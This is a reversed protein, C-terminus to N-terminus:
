TTEVKLTVAFLAGSPTDALVLDGGHARALDRAITLGIGTGSVGEVLSDNARFFPEFIHERIHTPIGPGHDEVRVRAMGSDLSTEIRVWKGTAAYKEVNSLLNGVIQELADRDFICSRPADPAFEVEFGRAALAASFSELVSSVVADITGPTPHLRATKRQQRGFTLVNSILRSLRQSEDVIVSLAHRTREGPDPLKDELMEAYMRINTLPTKLEHSVQNVFTVRQEAVRLQRLHERYFYIAFGLLVLAFACASAIVNFRTTGTIGRALPSADYYDLTWSNLPFSLPITIQSKAAKPPDYGGWAYLETNQSDRLAIRAEPPDPKASSTSPLAGIIDAILRSRSLEAGVIYQSPDVTWALLSLGDASFWPYWGSAGAPRRAPIPKASIATQAVQQVSQEVPVKQATIAQEPPATFVLARSEWLSGTRALFERESASVTTTADPFVLRGTPNLVFGSRLLGQQRLADRMADPARANQLLGSIERLRNDLLRAIQGDVDQLRQTVLARYRHAVMEQEDRALHFGLWLVAALPAVVIFLFIAALRPRM